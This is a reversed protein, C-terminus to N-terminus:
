IGAQKATPFKDAEIKARLEAEKSRLGIKAPLNRMAEPMVTCGANLLVLCAALLFLALLRRGLRCRFPKGCAQKRIM